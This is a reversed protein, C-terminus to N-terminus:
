LINYIKGATYRFIYVNDKFDYLYFGHIGDYLNLVIRINGADVGGKGM